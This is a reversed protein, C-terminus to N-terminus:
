DHRLATSPDVKLVRRSPMWCAMFTVAALFLPVSTFTVTDHGPLNYLFSALLRSSFWAMLLGPIMGVVALTMGQRIVLRQVEETRAGVALRIGIERTRRGVWQSIVGYLGLSALGLGLFGFTGFLVGALRPLFLADKLHEEITKTNFIALSSAVSHIQVRMAHAVAGPDGTYRAVVTYGETSPDTGMDQALSRYLVPRLDEGLTRSKTNKVVGIIQYVRDGDRVRQGIPNEAGFFRKAFLQNVVATRPSKSQDSEFVGGAVREIGMTDFYGPSAMYLDVVSSDGPPAPKGEVALGDSRHGGNLPVADTYTASIVGPLRAVRERMQQLLQVSRNNSYGNLRPDISMMLLGRSRFGIHIHSANQLSHLFLGTACLLVVSMTIQSVVMLNRISWIRGPRTLIQEATLRGAVLPRVVSWAPALGFLVGASVSLIFAYLLVSANVSLSLDLPVPAAVRFVAIARTAWLSLAAGLVGGELSLVVSETLMQSLLRWRTAGLALRVAFDRHRGYAQAVSLNVVNACAIGLVLLAVILLTTLFMLISARDRPALSGAVEMRFGTDRDTAPVSEPYAKASRDGFVRLEAEAQMASVGPALRGVVALWHYDRSTRNSTNPLLQDINDLPVWFQADLIIDLGRFGPPAIGVVTYPRGSLHVSKGVLNPDSDFRRRWLRDSIVVSPLHEEEATFGRGIEMPLFAVDFFNATVAQGWVREPEGTGDVSAPLLEYYAAVGSFSKAQESLDEYLLWSFNNCCQNAGQTTSITFLTAPDGVPPHHLVVRSVISFITSNAGIGVGLTLMTVAAYGPAKRIARFAYQLNRIVSDLLSGARKDRVQEKVSEPHGFKLRALRRAEGEPIGQAVYREVITEYFSEVDEHLEAEVSKRRFFLRLMAWIRWLFSM